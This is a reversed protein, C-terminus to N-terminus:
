LRKEIQRKRQAIEIALQFEDSELNPYGASLQAQLRELRGDLTQVEEPTFREGLERIQKKWRKEIEHTM